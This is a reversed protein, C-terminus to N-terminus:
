AHITQKNELDPTQDHEAPEARYITGDKRRQMPTLQYDQDTLHSVIDLQNHHTEIYITPRNQQLTQELGSLVQPGHGEVDIKIIDPTEYTDALTDLTTATVEDGDPTVTTRGPLLSRQLGVRGTCDSLCVQHVQIDCDNLDANDKLHHAVSAHPEIAHVHETYQAALISYFGINAGVDYFVTDSGLRSALETHVPTEAESVFSLEWAIRINPVTFQLRQDGAVVAATGQMWYALMSRYIRLRRTM